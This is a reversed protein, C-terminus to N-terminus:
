RRGATLRREMWQVGRSLLITMTLYIFALVSYAQFFVFSSSAYLKANQTIDDVGLVSVLSSDKLMAIFDNGLTPLIRRIAQPLVIYRMTQFYNMGLARAAETQGKDISQIGARFNEAEFSGYAFGLALVVRSENPFNRPTLGALWASGISAGLQNLGDMLMPVGVFAFYLLLVLIPVGRVVEVYFSAINYVVPNKSTRGLGTFLGIFLAIAFAIVATRLTIVLGPIIANFARSTKEDSVINYVILLGLLIVVLLWWPLTSLRNTFDPAIGPAPRQTQSPSSMPSIQINLQSLPSPHIAYAAFNAQLLIGDM